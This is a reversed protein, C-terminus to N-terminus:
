MRALSIGGTNWFGRIDVIKTIESRKAAMVSNFWFVGMVLDEGDQDLILFEESFFSGLSIKVKTMLNAKDGSVKLRQGGILNINIGGPPRPYFDCELGHDLLM